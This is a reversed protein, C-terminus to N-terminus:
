VAVLALLMWHWGHGRAAEQDAGPVAGMGGGGWGGGRVMAGWGHWRSDGLGVGCQWQVRFSGELRPAYSQSGTLDLAM